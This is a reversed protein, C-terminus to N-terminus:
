REASSYTCLKLFSGHRKIHDSNIKRHIVIPFQRSIVNECYRNGSRTVSYFRRVFIRGGSSRFDRFFKGLTDCRCKYYLLLLLLLLKRTSFKPNNIFDNHTPHFHSPSAIYKYEYKCIIGHLLSIAKKPSVKEMKM